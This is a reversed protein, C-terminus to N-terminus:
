WWTIKMESSYRVNRIEETSRVFPPLQEEQRFAEHIMWALSDLGVAISATSAGGFRPNVEILHLGENNIIAQLVVPGRLNLASIFESAQTEIDDDRFTTTIQSEGNQVRDRRRLVLGHVAGDLRVYADISIEAGHIFPQVIPNSLLPWYKEIESFSLNLFLNKSGSGFREKLVLTESYVADLRDSAPIVPFENESAWKAFELKDICRNLSEPASVATHVGMSNLFNKQSAWLSLEGDRTPMILGIARNQLAHIWEEPLPNEVKPSHWYDPTLHTAATDKESDCAVVRGEIRSKKAAVELERLLPIKNGASTVLINPRSNEVM